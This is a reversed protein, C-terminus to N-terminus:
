QGGPSRLRLVTQIETRLREIDLPKVIHADFGADLAKKRDSDRTMGSVAVLPLHRSKEDQRLQGALWYGDHEPMAVDSIVVDFVQTRAMELAQSASAAAQVTVGEFHLLEAFSSLLLPEDDVLLIRLGNLTPGASSEAAAENVAGTTVPLWVHFQVGAGLGESTAQVKGGHLLALQKVLALGIGLGAKKRSPGTEVQKFMEFIDNLYRPEIGIGSDAVSLRVMAGELALRVEVRGGEPTFKIANTLLNWVIQEVRVPDALANIGQALDVALELRKAAIEPEVADVVHQVLEDLHVLTPALVVKGTNVRSLELLDDIIQVQSTVASLIAQTARLARPEGVFTPLRTLLHTSMQIVALPNKLEHSMVALFEDKMLSAQQLRDREAREEVLSAERHRDRLEINTFDRAIKAYGVLAGDILPTTIGSCFIREGDKRVHWRDDEARGLERARRMEEQPMGTLRDEDTFIFGLSRGIAESASYGFVREAGPSWTAVQGSTNMTVIAYDRMSEAVLQMRQESLRLQEETARRSSIDFFTFIAGEIRNESTQYPLIRAMYWRGEASRVEREISRLERLVDAADTQLQPYELRHTIDLLPRGTDSALLNFLKAAQPTFRTIRMDRDIFVAGIEASAMLNQLDDNAKVTEEIKLQLEANVSVLEENVAQLEEKSTELEESTSRLEENITQLEENSARLEETSAASEGRSSRLEEQTKLLQSELAGVMPDMGQADAEELTMTDESEAFVVLRLGRTMDEAVPHVSMSLYRKHGNISLRVRRAEVSSATENSRALAARLEVRLEPRALALLKNSLVGGPLRLLHACREDVHLVTDDSDILVTPPAHNALARDHLAELPTRATVQPAPERTAPHMPPVLTLHPLPPLTRARKAIENARYIRHRADTASFLGDLADTTESSGLFLLGPAKLGFHFSRLLQAQASRDLYILLNRCCILDMRTFPPDSLVNHVSFVINDRVNKAIRYDGGEIVFFRQLREAPIDTSISSAYVGTRAAAVARQDIDSAFIQIPTRLPSLIEHLLIALSYAEEGTACAAVWARFPEGAPRSAVVDKVATELAAFADPDRFFHTVSILMDQLLALTEKPENELLRRYSPLDPLGNVKMRRELRRLVTARKYQTFNHGTRERLLAKISVLAEEALHDADSPPPAGGANASPEPLSIRRANDWLDILQQAMAQAPLVFDVLGTQIASQPMGDFEADDPSQAMSVGGCEKISKIGQAGDSGSGSLVVSVARTGHAQALSRFFHDISAHREAISTLEKVVLQGDSMLLKKSPSIVYVHDPEIAVPETVTVVPLKSVDGLVSGLMSSHDPSLHMVVVFAMGTNAPMQSFLTRLAAIGGASAGLGVVPFDLHSTVTPTDDPTAPLESTPM